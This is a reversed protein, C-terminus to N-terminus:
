SKSRILSRVYALCLLRTMFFFPLIFRNGKIPQQLIRFLWELNLKVFFLPPHRVTGAFYEFALGIGICLTSNLLPQLKSIIIEQKPAGLGCWFFTPSLQNIEDAIEQINFEEPHQFPPSVLGKVDVLPYDKQLRNGILQISEPTSGYFFHSYKKEKSNNLLTVLLDPGSVRDVYNLGKLHALWVLPKGDPLTLLSNNQIACYGTDRNSLYTTRTNTVCIYESDKIKLALDIYRLTSTMNACSIGLKGIYFRPIM